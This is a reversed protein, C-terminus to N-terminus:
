RRRRLAGIGAIGVCMLALVSPEPMPSSSAGFASAANAVKFYGLRDGSNALYLTDSMVDYTTNTLYNRGGFGVLEYDLSEILGTSTNLRASIGGLNYRDGFYIFGGISFAWGPRGDGLLALDIAYSTLFNLDYDYASVQYNSSSNSGGIVYLRNGDNMVAPASFGGWDFTDNGNSGGMGPVTVTMLDSGTNGNFHSIQVDSPYGSSQATTRGFISGGSAGLYANVVGKSLNLTGASNNAEFDSINNFVRLNSDTFANGSQGYDDVEYVRGTTSDVTMGFGFGPGARVFDVNVPTATALPSMLWLIIALGYGKREMTHM